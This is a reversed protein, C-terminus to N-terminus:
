ASRKKQRQDMAALTRKFVEEILPEADLFLTTGSFPIQGDKKFKQRYWKGTRHSYGVAIVHGAFAKWFSQVPLDDAWLDEDQMIRQAITDAVDVAFGFRVMERMFVLKCIDAYTFTTWAGDGYGHQLNVQGRSMWHRLLSVGIGLGQQVEAFRLKQETQSM